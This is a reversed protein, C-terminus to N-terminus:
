AGALAAIEGPSSSPWRSRRRGHRAWASRQREPIKRPLAHSRDASRERRARRSRVPSSSLAGPIGPWAPARDCSSVNSMGRARTCSNEESSERDWRLSSLAAVLAEVTAAFAAPMKHASEALAIEGPAIRAWLRSHSTYLAQIMVGPDLAGRGDGLQLPSSARRLASLDSKSLVASLRASPRRQIRSSTAAARAAGAAFRGPCSRRCTSPAAGLRSLPRSRVRM